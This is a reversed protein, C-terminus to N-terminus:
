IGGKSIPQEIIRRKFGGTIMHLLASHTDEIPGYNNSDVVIPCTVLEAAKGGTRFGLLGISKAGHDRGYELARLVDPSEGSGSIAIPVDGSQMRGKLEMVFSQAWDPNEGDDLAYSFLEPTLSLARVKYERGQNKLQDKIKLSLEMFDTAMHHAAALSGGNGFIFITKDDIYAQILIDIAQNIREKNITGLSRTLEALYDEFSLTYSQTEEGVQPRTDKNKPTTM